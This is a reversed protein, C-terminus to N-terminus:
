PTPYEGQVCIVYLLNPAPDAIAPIRFTRDPVGGFRMGIVRFLVLNDAIPIERGDCHMWYRPVYRGSFLRVEGVTGDYM